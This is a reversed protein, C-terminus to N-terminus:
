VMHDAELIKLIRIESPNKKKSVAYFLLFYIIKKARMQSESMPKTRFKRYFGSMKTLIVNDVNSTEFFM